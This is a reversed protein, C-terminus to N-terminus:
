IRAARAARAYGNFSGRYRDLSCLRLWTYVPEPVVLSSVTSKVFKLTRPLRM